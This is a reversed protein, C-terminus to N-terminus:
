GVHKKLWAKEDDSQTSDPWHISVCGPPGQQRAAEPNTAEVDKFGSYMRDGNKLPRDNVFLRYQRKM